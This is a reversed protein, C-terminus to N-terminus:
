CFWLDKAGLLVLSSPKYGNINSVVKAKTHKIRKRKEIGTDVKFINESLIIKDLDIKNASKKPNSKEFNVTTNISPIEKDIISTTLYSLAIGLAIYIFYDIIRDIKKSEFSL